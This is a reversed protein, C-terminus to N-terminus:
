ILFRSHMAESWILPLHDAAHNVGGGVEFEFLEHAKMWVGDHGSYSGDTVATWDDDIHLHDACAQVFIPELSIATYGMAEDGIFVNNRGRLLRVRRARDLRHALRM